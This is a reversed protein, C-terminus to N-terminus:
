KQAHPPHSGLGGACIPRNGGKRARFTEASVSDAAPPPGNIFDRIQVVAPRSAKAGGNFSGPRADDHETDRTGNMQLRLESECIGVYGNGTLGRGSFTNTQPVAVELDPLSVIDDNAVNTGARSVDGLRLM